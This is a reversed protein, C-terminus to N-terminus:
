TYRSENNVSKFFLPRMIYKKKKIKCEMIELM